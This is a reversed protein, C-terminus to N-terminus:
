AVTTAAWCGAAVGSFPEEWAAPSMSGRVPSVGAAGTTARERVVPRGIVRSIQSVSQSCDVCRRNLSWSTGANSAALGSIATLRCYRSQRTNESFSIAAEAPPTSGSTNWAPACNTAGTALLPM